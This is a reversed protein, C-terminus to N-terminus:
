TQFNVSGYVKLIHQRGRRIWKTPLIIFRFLFKKIRFAPDLQSVKESYHKIIYNYINNCLGGLILPVTNFELKSFPLKAWGFDNKLIGIRNEMAGRQHYFRMVHEATNKFDTTIIGHYEFDDGTLLNTQGNKNKRKTIVLRCERLLHKQKSRVAQQIFPVMNVEGVYSQTGDKREFVQWDQVGNLHAYIHRSPISVYINNVEKFLLLFLEYKYSAADARFNEIEIEHKKLLSFARELTQDQLAIANSNGNRNEVYVVNNGITALGPQYGNVKKYTKKSDSKNTAIITNDYDLTLGQEAEFVGLLKSVALNLDNLKQNISFQHDVKGSKTQFLEIPLSLEKFRRIICDPGPTNIFVNNEFYTKLNLDIDEICDGGCFFISFYSYLIDRWTYISQSPLPPLYEEFIKNLDLQDLTEFVFNMGGFPNIVDAKQLKM